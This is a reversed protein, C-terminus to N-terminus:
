LRAVTFNRRGYEYKSEMVLGDELFLVAVNDGRKIVKEEMASSFPMTWALKKYEKEPTLFIVFSRLRPREWRIERGVLVQYPEGPSELRYGLFQGYLTNSESLIHEYAQVDKLCRDIEYNNM